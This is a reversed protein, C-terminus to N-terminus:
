RLKPPSLTVGYNDFIAKMRGDQLASFIIDDVTYSLPKYAFHIATGVTWKGVSFNPLPPEHVDTTSTLGYELQAKPGMVAMVEGAALAAMADSTSRYRKITDDGSRVLLGTLYFDAISDNEVGVTDFRFYAPVPKEDPYAPKSYAIAIGEEHDTGTFTVQEIRCAFDSDYPVHMMVNKVAGGVIPGKWIWNRLDVDLNEGAAVLYVRAKVGLDEAILNAIDVDIGAPEGALEFSWPAFDEYVAVDIYGRDIITDIDAGVIDRSANQPKPQPVYDKCRAEASHGSAVALVAICATVIARLSMM